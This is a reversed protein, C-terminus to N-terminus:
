PNIISFFFFVGLSQNYISIVLFPRAVTLLPMVSCTSTCL